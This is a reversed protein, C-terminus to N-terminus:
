PDLMLMCLISPYSLISVRLKNTQIKVEKPEAHTYQILNDLRYAALQLRCDAIQYLLTNMIHLAM